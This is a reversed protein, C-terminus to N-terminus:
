PSCKTKLAKAEAAAEKAEEAKKEKKAKKEEAPTLTKKKPTTPTTALETYQDLFLEKANTTVLCLTILSYLKM